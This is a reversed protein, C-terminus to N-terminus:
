DMYQPFVDFGLLQVDTNRAVVKVVLRTDYTPFVFFGNLRNVVNTLEYFTAGGDNSAFYVVDATEITINELYIMEQDNGSIVLQASVNQATPVELWDTTEVFWGVRPKLTTRSLEVAGSMIRLTAENSTALTRNMPVKARVRQGPEIAAAPASTAVSLETLKPKVVILSLGGSNSVAGEDLTEGGVITLRDQGYVFTDGHRDRARFSITNFASMSPWVPSVITTPAVAPQYFETGAITQTTVAVDGSPSKEVMTGAYTLVQYPRDELTQYSPSYVKIERIGAFYALHADRYAEKTEYKHVATTSFRDRTTTTEVRQTRVSTETIHNIIEESIRLRQGPFIWWGPDRRPLLNLRYDNDIMPRNATYLDWWNMGLKQGIGILTDGSVIDYFAEQSVTETSTRVSRWLESNAVETEMSRIVPKTSLAPLSSSVFINDESVVVDYEHKTSWSTSTSSSAAVAGNVTKTYDDTLTTQQQVTKKSATLPFVKYQVKIGSEWVPYSQPTLDSFELKLFKTKLPSPFRLFGKEVMFDSWVPSWEKGEFFASDLGGMPVEMSTLDAGFIIDTQNERDEWFSIINAAWDLWNDLTGQNSVQKLAIGTLHGELNGIELTAGIERRSVAVSTGVGGASSFAFLRPSEDCRFVIHVSGGSDFTIPTTTVSGLSITSDVPNYTISWEGSKFLTLSETFGPNSSSFGPRWGIGLWYSEGSRYALSATPFSWLSNSQDMRVGLDKEWTANVQQSIDAPRGTLMYTGVNEDDSWYLNLKQGSYVPDIWLSDIVQGKLSPDRVDLFLSVVADQAPQPASKWFSASAGDIARRADWDKVVHTVTNGLTDVTKDIPQSADERLYINRKPLLNKLGLTWMPNGEVPQRQLRVEIASVVVSSINKTIRTWQGADGQSVSGKVPSGYTDLMPKRVGERDRYWLEYNQRVQLVEFSLNSVSVPSSTEVVLIEWRPDSMPAPQSLWYRDQEQQKPIAPTLPAPYSQEQYVVTRQSPTSKLNPGSRLVRAMMAM